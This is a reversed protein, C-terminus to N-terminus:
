RQRGRLVKGSALDRIESAGKAPGCHGPVIYDVRAGFHRRLVFRNRVTPRGSLNASTSVIASDVADCIAAAVPNSTLRVALGRHRGRVLPHLRDGAPVIWTIPHRPDPAPLPRDGPLSALGALQDIHSAIVILVKAPDRQKLGLLRWVAVPDDPLCGLGFVGETPYAIIGGGQLVEAARMMSIMM